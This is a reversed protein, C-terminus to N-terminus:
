SDVVPAKKKQLLKGVGLFGLLVITAKVAVFIAGILWPTPAIVMMALVGTIFGTLPVSLM